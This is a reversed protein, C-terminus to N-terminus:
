VAVRAQHRDHITESENTSTREQSTDDFAAILGSFGEFRTEIDQLYLRFRALCESETLNEHNLLIAVLYEGVDLIDGIEKSSRGKYAAFRTCIM